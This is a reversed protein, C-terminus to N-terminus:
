VDFEYLVRCLARSRAALRRWFYGNFFEEKLFNVFFGSKCWPAESIKPRLISIRLM